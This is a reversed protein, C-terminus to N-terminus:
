RDYQSTITGKGQDDVVISINGKWRTSWVNKSFQRYKNSADTDPKKGVSVITYDPSMFKVADPHYGNDRGHHSAKLVDCKLGQGYTSAISGWVEKEADGGLIVNIGQYKVLLVYSLNNSNDSAGASYEQESTPALVYLGDGGSVGEPDQNWFTGKAAQYLHLVKNGRSGARLLGYEEWEQKDSDSQFDPVKDHKRDWFNAINIGNQHLALLGRMHDLDPHTQIYRFISKSPYQKQLFEIPNTLEVDYGGQKLLAQAMGTSSALSKQLASFKYAEALEAVSTPDLLAGNNIDVITLRGSGHSIITCDGHGVNLFDIRLM